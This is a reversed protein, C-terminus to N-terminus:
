QPRKVPKYSFADERQSYQLGLTKVTPNEDKFEIFADMKSNDAVNELVAPDNSVWKTLPFKGAELTRIIKDVQEKCEEITDGGSYLDDMYFGEKIIKITAADPAHDDAVQHLTRIAQWPACDMGYTITNLTFEEIPSNKTPRWIIRLKKSDEKKLLTQRFMKTIDGSYFYKHQRMGGTIVDFIKTQLKPGAHVINNLSVGTSTPASANFVNRLKTTVADKRLISIYPVYYVDGSEIKQEEKPVRSMHGMELYETMFENSMKLHEADKTWRAEQGFYFSLTKKYSHGLKLDTDKWPIPVVYRGEENQYVEKKYLEECLDAESVPIDTTCPSFDWFKHSAELPDLTGDLEHVVESQTIFTRVEVKKNDM